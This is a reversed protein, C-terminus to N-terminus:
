LKTKDGRPQSPRRHPEQPTGPPPKAGPSGLPPKRKPPKKEPTNKHNQPPALVRPNLTAQGPADSRHKTNQTNPQTQNQPKPNQQAQSKRKPAHTAQTNRAHSPTNNTQKGPKPQHKTESVPPTSLRPHTQYLKGESASPRSRTEQGTCQVSYPKHHNTSFRVLPPSFPHNQQAHHPPNTKPNQNTARKQPTTQLSSLTFTKTQKCTPIM